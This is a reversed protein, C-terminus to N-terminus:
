ICGCTVLPKPPSDLSCGKSEPLLFSVLLGAFNVAALVYLSNQLGIGPPYPFAIDANQDQSAYLFGFAGVIAGAKGCAACFGHASSRWETPFVEAPYVFTTTNPGFNAFFFTLAYLAIFYNHQKKLREYYIALLLMCLTMMFFGMIQIFKRGFREITFVTFYYGPVTSVLAVLAQARSVAFMEELASMTSGKPIWGIETFLDKQFLNQSYFAVDLLFWSSACAFLSVGYERIFQRFPIKKMNPNHLPTHEPLKFRVYATLLAPVCGILLVIRWAFDADRPCSALIQDEDELTGSGFPVDNLSSRFISSVVIAVTAGTLIGIGQMSFIAAVFAGRNKRHSFEAMITAALPYDGGVGFGLIFRWACLTGVVANATTGFSMSSGIAAVIMLVLTGGFSDKRGIRDGLIGFVLQGALTGCLAVATIAANIEIPLAGVKVKHTATPMKQYYLRGLLKTLMSICFLDYADAFFGMGSAIAANFHTRSTIASSSSSSSSNASSEKHTAVVSKHDTELDM